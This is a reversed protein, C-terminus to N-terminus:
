NPHDGTSMLDVPYLLLLTNGLHQLYMVTSPRLACVTNPLIVRRCIELKVPKPDIMYSCVFFMIKNKQHLGFWDFQLGATCHYKWWRKTRRNVWKKVAVGKLFLMVSPM